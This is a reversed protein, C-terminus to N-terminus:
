IGFLTNHNIQITRLKEKALNPLIHEVAFMAYKLLMKEPLYFDLQEGKILSNFASNLAYFAHYIDFIILYQFIMRLLEYPISTYASRSLRRRRQNKRFFRLRRRRCAFIFVGNKM